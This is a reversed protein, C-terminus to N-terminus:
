VSGYVKVAYYHIGQLSCCSKSYIGQFLRRIACVFLTSLTQWEELATPTIMQRHIIPPMRVVLKKSANTSRRLFPKQSFLKHSDRECGNGYPLVINNFRGTDLTGEEMPWSPPKTFLHTVEIEKNLTSPTRQKDFFGAPSLLNADLQECPAPSKSRDM